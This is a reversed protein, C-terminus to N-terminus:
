AGDAHPRLWRLLSLGARAVRSPRRPHATAARPEDSRGRAKSPLAPAAEAPRGASAGARHLAQEGQIRGADHFSLALGADAELGYARVAQMFAEAFLAPACWLKEAMHVPWIWLGDSRRHGLEDRAIFYGTGRHELGEPTVTWDENTFLHMDEFAGAGARDALLGSRREDQAKGADPEDDHVSRRVREEPLADPEDRALGGAGDPADLAPHRAKPGPRWAAPRCARDPRSGREGPNVGLGAAGIQVPRARGGCEQRRM